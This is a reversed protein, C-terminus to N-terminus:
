GTWTLEVPESAHDLGDKWDDEAIRTKETDIEVALTTKEPMIGNETIFDLNFTVTDGQEPIDFVIYSIGKEERLELVTSHNGDIAVTHKNDVFGALSMGEPMEGLRIWIEAKGAWNAGSYTAIVSVGLEQGTKAETASGPKPTIDVTIRQSVDGGTNGADKSEM